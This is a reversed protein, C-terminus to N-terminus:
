YYLRLADRDAGRRGHRRSAESESDVAEGFLIRDGNPTNALVIGKNLVWGSIEKNNPLTPMVHLWGPPGGGPVLTLERGRDIEEMRTSSTDPSLYLTAVRINYGRDAAIAPVAIALLVIFTRLPRALM